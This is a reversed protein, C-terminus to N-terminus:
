MQLKGKFKFFWIDEVEQSIAWTQENSLIHRSSIGCMRYKTFLHTIIIDITISSKLLIIVVIGSITLRRVISSFIISTILYKKGKNM